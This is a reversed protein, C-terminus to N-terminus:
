NKPIPPPPPPPPPAVSPAEVDPTYLRKFLEKIQEDYDIKDEDKIDDSSNFLNVTVNKFNQILDLLKNYVTHIFSFTHNLHNVQSFDNIIENITHSNVYNKLNM